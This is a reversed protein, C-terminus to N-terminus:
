ASKLNSFERENYDIDKMKALKDKMKTRKIKDALLGMFVESADREGEFRVRIHIEKQKRAM